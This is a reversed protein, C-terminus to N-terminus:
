SLMHSHSDEQKCAKVCSPIIDYLTCIGSQSSYHKKVYIDRTPILDGTTPITGRSMAGVAQAGAATRGILLTGSNGQGAGAVGGTRGIIRSATTGAESTGVVVFEGIRSWRLLILPGSCTNRISSITQLSAIPLSNKM